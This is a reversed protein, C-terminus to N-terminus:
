QLSIPMYFHHPLPIMLNHAPSTLQSMCFSPFQPHTFPPGPTHQRVTSSPHHNKAVAQTSIQQLHIWQCHPTPHTPLWPLYRVPLSGGHSCFPSGGMTWNVILIFCIHFFCGAIYVLYNTFIFILYNKKGNKERFRFVFYSSYKTKWEKLWFSFRILANFIWLLFRNFMFIATLGHISLIIWFILKKFFSFQM